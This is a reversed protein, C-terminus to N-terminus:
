LQATAPGHVEFDSLIANALAVTEPKRERAAHALDTARQRVTNIETASTSLADKNEALAVKLTALKKDLEQAEAKKSAIEALASSKQNIAEELDHKATELVHRAQVTATQQQDVLNQQEAAKTRLDDVRQQLDQTGKTTKAHLDLMDNLNKIQATSMKGIQNYTEVLIKNATSIQDEYHRTADEQAKHLDSASQQSLQSFKYFTFLGLGIFALYPAIGGLAKFIDVLADWQTRGVTVGPRARRRHDPPDDDEDPALPTKSNQM